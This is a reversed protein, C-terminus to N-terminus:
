KAENLRLLRDSVSSRRLLSPLATSRLSIAVASTTSSLKRGPMMSLIPRERSSSRRMLGSRTTAWMVPKPWSPGYRSRGVNSKMACAILPKMLTLPASPSGGCRAAGGSDSRIAPAYAAIPMQPASTRRSRVPFPSSTDALRTSLM